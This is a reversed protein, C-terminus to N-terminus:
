ARPDRDPGPYEGGVAEAYAADPTFIQTFGAPHKISTEVHSRIALGTSATRLNDDFSLLHMANGHYACAVAPHDRAPHTVLTVLDEIKDRWATALGADSVTTIVAAADALLPESAVLTIWTHARVVDLADRAAGDILLDAALVDADAVIRAINSM